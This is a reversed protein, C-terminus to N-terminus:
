GVTAQINNSDAENKVSQAQVGGCVSRGSCSCQSVLECRPDVKVLITKSSGSDGVEIRWNLLDHESSPEERAGGRGRSEEAGQGGRGSM